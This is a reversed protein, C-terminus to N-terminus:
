RRGPKKPVKGERIALLLRALHAATPGIVMEGREARAVSNSHWGIEDAFAAQTMGLRQRIRRLEKGTMRKIM